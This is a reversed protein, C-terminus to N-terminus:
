GRAASTIRLVRTEFAEMTFRCTPGECAAGDPPWLPECACGSPLMLRKEGAAAAHVSVFGRGAQLVDDGEIWDHVGAQDLLSRLEPASLVAPLAASAEDLRPALVRTADGDSHLVTGGADAFADALSNEEDTLDRCGLLWVFRTRTLDLLPLDGRLYIAFPRGCRTLARRNRMFVDCLSGFSADLEALREDVVVCLAGAPGQRPDEPSDRRPWIAQLSEFEALLAPHDYWGGWMDFWWGGYGHALMRAANARLLAASVQLSEPGAWVGGRYQGEPCIAPATEALPRTLFTRTDNEAMWLKGHLRVSDVAVMPPWDVGPARDYLNPSSVYDLDPCTLLESLAAHGQRVDCVALQYGYFVGTLLRGGSAEKVIKCFFRIADTIAVGHFRLAELAAAERRPDRWRREPEASLAALAEAPDAVESERWARERSGPEPYRRALYAAFAAARSPNADEFRGRSHYFWEETGGAAVHIGALRAAYPSESLWDVVRRLAAGAAERWVPSTFSQRLTTGDGRQCCGEPHNREWWEPVDLHLRMIVQAAPDAERIKAMDEHIDAFDFRDDDRWLGKRFPGIGSRINIGRCALYAPFSYLHIGCQAAQRYFRTQPLYSLYAVPPHWTGGVVIGPSALDICAGPFRNEGQAKRQSKMCKGEM